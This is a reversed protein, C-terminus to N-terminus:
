WLQESNVLEVMIKGEKFSCKLTVKFDGRHAEALNLIISESASMTKEEQKNEQKGENAM